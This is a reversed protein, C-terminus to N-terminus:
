RHIRRDKAEADAGGRTEALTRRLGAELTSTPRWGLQTTARHISLVLRDDAGAGPPDRETVREELGAARCITRALEGISTGEGSAINFVRFGPRGDAALAALGAAADEVFLFDRVPAVRGIVLAEGRRAQELLIGAVTDAHAGPGYVNGFRAVSCSFGYEAAYGALLNEAALKTAAYMTAPALAADEAIAASGTRAYVLATSPLVVRTIAAARCAELLHATATVNLAQARAPDRRCEGVHAAGALHFVVTDKGASGAIDAIDAIAAALGVRDLLDARRVAGAAAAPPANLDLGIVSTGAAALRRCLVTGLFGAAGTVLALPAPPAPHPARGPDASTM